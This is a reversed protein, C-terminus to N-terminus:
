PSCYKGVRNKTNVIEAQREDESLRKVRGDPYQLLVQPRRELSALRKQEGLCKQERQEPTMKAAPDAQAQQQAQDGAPTTDDSNGGADNAPQADAPRPPGKLTQYPATEPPSQTYHTVGQPDVWRYIDGYVLSASSLLWLGPPAPGGGGAGPGPL